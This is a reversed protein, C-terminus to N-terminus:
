VILGGLLPHFQKAVKPISNSVQEKAIMIQWQELEPFM